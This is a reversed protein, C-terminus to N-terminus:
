VAPGVTATWKEVGGLTIRSIIHASVNASTIQYTSGTAGAIATCGTPATGSATAVPATCTFWAYSFTAASSLLPSMHGWTQPGVIGDVTLGNRQQYTRVNATTQPGYIGDVTTPIGARTLATQISMVNYGNYVRGANAGTPTYSTTQGTWTGTAATLTSGVTASGSLSPDSPNVAVAGVAATSITWRSVSGITNTGTVSAAIFRGSDADVPLYTAANAAPIPSCDAPQASAVAAVPSACSFWAYSITPTPAGTWVGANATLTSGITATGSVSPETTAAPAATADTVVATSVTWRSASSSGSTGTVQGVIFTGIDASRVVYTGSTEGSIPTCGAPLTSSVATVPSTCRNWGLTLTGTWTGTNTTLTSGVVATGSLSPDGPTVTGSAIVTTTTTWKTVAAVSNTGTVSAAIFKGANADVPVYTAASAGSIPSCSAPKSSPVATVASTCAFWAYSLAPTPSGTWVGPNTTLTSGIAATGSVTPSSTTAPASAVAVTSQAWKSASGTSSTATIRSTLYKGSNAQVVVFTSGTAGGIATCGSPLTSSVATVPTTCTFWAYSITPTNNLLTSMHGWTQPGVIGDVTLGNRQQYTRVNARTQPGYIGDVTTPIGARTLATQISMVNYGNYTRGANAGTPTYTTPNGTFAGSFTTLTSGVAATGTVYPDGPAVPAAGIVSTTTTFRTATGHTNTGTVSAAIFKGANAEVPVYTAGTAGSIQTCAAPKSSAVATVPSTCTFWANSLTPTPSGVWVGSQATLTGGLAATGSVSPATTTAPAGAVAVTSTAWRSTSGASNTATVRATVFTGANAATIQFTPGTAGTIGTCGAPQTSSVATVATTCAFWTYTISPAPSGSWSGPSATLTSGTTRTGTVAPNATSAPVTGHPNGFWDVYFQFFNRNGYSSCSDGIGYGAALAAGNPTYPTYLYLSHTAQNAIYVSQTGCAVNPHYQIQSVSGVPKWLDYRTNWETGAGTGPPQTYRKLLYAGYRVQNFFGYYNSDCAATDPCGAGMASRYRGSSPATSSVLSQEKQLMVLIVRPSIGCAQAVRYIITASSENAAGTYTSCMPNGAVTHTTERYDKLCTYGSQCNTVKSNLFSQIQDVTMANPDFFLSDSIINGPQFQSLDAAAAPQEPAVAPQIAVLGTAAVTAILTIALARGLRRVAARLRQSM